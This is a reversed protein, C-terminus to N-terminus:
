GTPYVAIGGAGAGGRLAALDYWGVTTHSDRVAIREDPPLAALQASDVAFVHVIEHGRGSASDFINETVALPRVSELSVDLEEAFERHVADEATEGFEIGGGPARLFEAHRENAPYSELLVAGGRVMLGVAIARVRDPKALAGAYAGVARQYRPLRPALTQLAVRLAEVPKQDSHLALALFARASSVLPDSDPVAHLLAIAGSADGLNRLTSALQITAQTRLEPDLDGALAARYLPVAADEEGLSDHLSAREYDVRAEGVDAAAIVQELAARAAAPATLDVRDWFADFVDSADTAAVPAAAPDLLARVRAQLAVLPPDTVDARAFVHLGRLAAGADSLAGSLLHPVLDSAKLEGIAGTEGAEWRPDGVRHCGAAIVVSKRRTSNAGAWEAGADFLAGAAFGTEEALERAGAVLASEGPDILGGPLEVIPAAPGVRFQEFVLVTGATTFAVVAVTDRQELVDWDSESGDPLRYTDRRVRTYGDFMPTSRLLQWHPIRDSTM